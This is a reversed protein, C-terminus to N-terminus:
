FGSRHVKFSYGKILPYMGCERKYVTGVIYVDFGKMFRWLTRVLLVTRSVM